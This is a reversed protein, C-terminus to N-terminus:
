VVEKYKVGPILIGYNWGRGMSKARCVGRTASHAEITGGNGDSFAIHGAKGNYRLLIAGPTKIAKVIPVSEVIGRRVDRAWAGTYADCDEVWSNDVCGLLVDAVQYVVWSVFEACDWPGHWNLDDTKTNAGFVYKEGIRTAALCLFDQGTKM